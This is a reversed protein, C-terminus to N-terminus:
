GQMYFLFPVGAPNEVGARLGKLQCAGCEETNGIILLCTHPDAAAAWAGEVSNFTACPHGDEELCEIVQRLQEADFIGNLIQVTDRTCVSQPLPSQDARPFDM